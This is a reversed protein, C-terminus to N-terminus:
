PNYSLSNQPTRRCRVGKWEGSLFREEHICTCIGARFLRSIEEWDQTGWERVDDDAVVMFAM